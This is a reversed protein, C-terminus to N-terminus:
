KNEAAACLPAYFSDNAIVKVKAADNNKAHSALESLDYADAEDTVLGGLYRNNTDYLAAFVKVGETDGSITVGNSTAFYTPATQAAAMAIMM